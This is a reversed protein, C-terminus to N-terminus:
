GDWLPCLSNSPLWGTVTELGRQDWCCFWRWGRRPIQSWPTGWWVRSGSSSFTTGLTPLVMQDDVLQWNKLRELTFKSNTQPITPLLKIALWKSFPHHVLFPNPHHILFGLSVICVASAGFTYASTVLFGGFLHTDYIVKETWVM